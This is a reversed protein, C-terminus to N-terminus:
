VVIMRYLVLRPWNRLSLYSALHIYTSPVFLMTLLVVFIVHGGKALVLERVETLSGSLM